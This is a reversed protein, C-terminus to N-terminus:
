LSLLYWWITGAIVTWALATNGHNGMAWGVTPLSIPFDAIILFETGAILPELKPIAYGLLILFCAALHLLPLFYVWRFRTRIASITM